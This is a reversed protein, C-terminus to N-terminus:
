VPRSNASVDAIGQGPIGSESSAVFIEKIGVAKGCPRSLVHIFEGCGQLPRHRVVDDAAELEPAVKGVLRNKELTQSRHQRLVGHRTSQHESEVAALRLLIPLADHLSLTYIETTATDNFFFFSYNTALQLM